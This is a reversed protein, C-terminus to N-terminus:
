SEGEKQERVERLIDLMRQLEETTPEDLQRQIARHVAGVVASAEEWALPAWPLGAISVRGGLVENEIALEVVIRPGDGEFQEEM